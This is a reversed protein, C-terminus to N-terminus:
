QDAFPDNSDTPTAMVSEYRAQEVGEISVLDFSPEGKYERGPKWTLQVECGELEKARMGLEENFTSYRTGDVMVGTAVWDKGAASTGTKITVTDAIGQVTQGGQPGAPRAAGQPASQPRQAPRPAAQPAPAHTASAAYEHSAHDAEPEHTELMFTQILFVKHAYSMAKGASKDGSDASEGTVVGEVSSGDEAFLQYRVTSLTTQMLGGSKTAVTGRECSIVSPVSFVGHTAMIGHLANYIDDVGRFAFGQQQNRQKKEVAGVENKIAAIKKYILPSAENSM